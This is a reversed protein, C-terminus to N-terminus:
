SNKKKATLLSELDEPLDVKFNKLVKGDSDLLVKHPIYKIGYDAPPKGHGHWADKLNREKAYKVADDRSGMNVLMFNVKDKYKADGALQEIKEAAPGCAPCFNQYFDIVTPKKNKALFEKLTTQTGSAQEILEINPAEQGVLAACAKDAMASTIKSMVMFAAVTILLPVYPLIWDPVIGDLMQPCTKQAVFFVGIPLLQQLQDM